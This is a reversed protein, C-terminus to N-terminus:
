PDKDGRGVRIADITAVFAKLFIPKQLEDLMRWGKIIAREDSDKILNEDKELSHDVGMLIFDVTVGYFEALKRLVDPGLNSRNTELKTLHSRSIGIAAAVDVQTSRRLRRLRLLRSGLTDMPEDIADESFFHTTGVFM